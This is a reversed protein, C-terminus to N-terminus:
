VYCALLFNRSVLPTELRISISMFGEKVLTGWQIIRILLTRCLGSGRALPFYHPYVAQTQESPTPSPSFILSGIKNWQFPARKEIGYFKTSLTETETCKFNPATIGPEFHGVQFLEWWALLSVTSRLTGAHTSHPARQESYTGIMESPFVSLTAQAVWAIIRNSHLLETLALTLIDGLCSIM